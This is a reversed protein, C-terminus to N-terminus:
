LANFRIYRQFANSKWRGLKQITADSLGRAAADTAAGIRFSHEKYRNSNLGCLTLTHSLMNTVFYYSLTSGSKFQFLPGKKHSFKSLYTKTAQVPCTEGTDTAYLHLSTPLNSDNTKHHRLTVIMSKESDFSIDTVQVVKDADSKSKPVLEGLRMFAYYAVLFLSKLMARIDPDLVSFKLQKVLNSLINFTIPLRSDPALNKAALRSGKLMKKVLFSQCPDSSNLLKHVFSVASCHSAISSPSFGQAHLYGIFNSIIIPSFPINFINNSLQHFQLLLKWSRAYAKKTAPLLSSQLLKLSETSLHDNTRTSHSNRGPGVM